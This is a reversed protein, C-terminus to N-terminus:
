VFSIGFPQPDLISATRADFWFLLRSIFHCEYPETTWGCKRKGVRSAGGFVRSRRAAWRRGPGAQWGWRAGFSRGRRTGTRM